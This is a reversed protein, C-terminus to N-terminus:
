TLRKAAGSMPSRTSAVRPLPVCRTPAETALTTTAMTIVTTRESIIRRSSNAERTPRAAPLVTRRTREDTSGSAHDSAAVPKWSCTESPYRRANGRESRARVSITSLSAQMRSSAARKTPM